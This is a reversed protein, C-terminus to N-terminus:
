KGGSRREQRERPLIVLQRYMSYFGAGAGVFVGILLFLPESGLQGDVWRGIFFFLVIAGAFQVGVGAYQAADNLGSQPREGGGERNPM